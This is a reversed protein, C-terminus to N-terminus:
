LGCRPRDRDKAAQGVIAQGRHRGGRTWRVHGGARPPSFDTLGHRVFTAQFFYPTVLHTV